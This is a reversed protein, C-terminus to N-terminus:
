KKELTAIVIKHVTDSPFFDHWAGNGAVFTVADFKDVNVEDFSMDVAIPKADAFYLANGKLINRRDPNVPEKFRGATTVEFGAAKYLQVPTAYEPWMFDNPIMMLVKKNAFVPGSIFFIISLIFAKL